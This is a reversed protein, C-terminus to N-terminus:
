QGIQLTGQSVDKGDEFIKRWYRKEMSVLDKKHSVTARVM